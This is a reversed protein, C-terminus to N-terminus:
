DPCEGSLFISVLSVARIAPSRIALLPVSFLFVDSCIRMLTWYFKCYDCEERNARKSALFLIFLSELFYWQKFM